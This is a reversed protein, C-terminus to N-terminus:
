RGQSDSPMRTVPTSPKLEWNPRLLNPNPREPPSFSKSLLGGTLDFAYLNGDDSGVYVVGNAVAPSSEIAGGTAYIWLLAGTSANLAYLSSDWSGVYVVGNAVAPSSGVGGGTTFKWLLTGTYANLAYLGPDNQSSSGVYVAGNAVAPSSFGGGTEYKWLFWGTNANLAYLSGDGGVYLVGNTVTPSSVVSGETTFKWLLTGTYANLAYVGPDDYAGGVYVAGNAVAPSAELNGAGSQWLPAGTSANFASVIGISEVYVVGNAVAPSSFDIPDGFTHNWVLAGTSANLAYLNWDSSGFYVINNAVAPSSNVDEGTKYKWLLAGTSANFAYLNSDEYPCGVYVVGNAVAPSSHIANCTQYRWHLGIRGVTAPSLVNEYPNVGKHSPEFHFQAWDTQVLFSKQAAKQGYREVATIWHKGPVASAPVQIAIGGRISGGGFTGQGNTTALALDTTDFYIDVAVYPDFGTGWVLVNTTPPGVTPTIAVAPATALTEEARSVTSWLLCATLLLLLLTLTFSRQMARSTRFPIFRLAPSADAFSRNCQM